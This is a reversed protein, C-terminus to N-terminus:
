EDAVATRIYLYPMESLDFRRPHGSIDSKPDDILEVHPRLPQHRNAEVVRAREGTSLRVITGPPFVSVEALLAKIVESPFAEHRARVIERVADHPGRPAGTGALRTYQDLLGLIKAWLHIAEGAFGGPYGQGREREHHQAVADVIGPYPPDWRRITDAARRPHDHPLADPATTTGAPLSPETTGPPYSHGDLSPRRV